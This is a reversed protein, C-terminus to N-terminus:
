HARLGHYTRIERGKGRIAWIGWNTKVMVRPDFDAVEWKESRFPNEGPHIVWEFENAVAPAGDLSRVDREVDEPSFGTVFVACRTALMAPVVPGWETPSSIQLEPKGNISSRSTMSPFGLGPSFLCFIDTFPDFSDQFQSHIAMYNAQIGTITLQPTYPVTYSPADYLEVSSRTRKLRAIPKPTPPEYVNPVYVPNAQKFSKETEGNSTNSVSTTQVPTTVSKKKPLSVQPGIFFLHFHCSPFPMCLQEWVHPPLSSEARAGLIFIRMQPKSAGAEETDPSGPPVHLTTRLAISHQRLAFFSITTYPTGALSRSGQLTVRQNDLTLGSNQHLVSAITLPYTLLKSAHRRSRETDM